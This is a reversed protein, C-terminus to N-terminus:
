TLVFKYGLYRMAKIFGGTVNEFQGLARNCPHCLLGRVRGTEHDHDVSLRLRKPPRSCIKCVGGQKKFMLDYQETTLDYRHKLQAVRRYEAAKVPDIRKRRQRATEKAREKNKELWARMRIRAKERYEPHTRRYERQYVVRAAKVEPSLSAYNGM